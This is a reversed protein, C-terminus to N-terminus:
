GGFFSRAARDDTFKTQLIPGSSVVLNLPLYRGRCGAKKLEMSLAYDETITYTPFWGVQLVFFV